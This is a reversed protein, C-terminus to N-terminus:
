MQSTKKSDIKKQNMTVTYSSRSRREHQERKRRTGTDVHHWSADGDMVMLVLPLFGYYPVWM